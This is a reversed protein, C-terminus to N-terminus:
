RHFLANGLLYEAPLFFDFYFAKLPMRVSM